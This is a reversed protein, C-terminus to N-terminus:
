PLAQTTKEAESHDNTFVKDLEKKAPVLERPPPTYLGVPKEPYAYPTQVPKTVGGEVPM